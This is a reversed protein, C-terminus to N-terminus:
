VESAHVEHISKPGSLAAKLRLRGDFNGVIMRLKLPNTECRHSVAHPTHFNQRLKLRRRRLGPVEQCGSRMDPVRRYGPDLFYRKILVVKIGEGFWNVVLRTRSCGVDNVM